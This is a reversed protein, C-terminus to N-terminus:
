GGSGYKVMVTPREEIELRVLEVINGVGLMHIGSAKRWKWVGAV